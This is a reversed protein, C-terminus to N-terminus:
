ETTNQDGQPNQRDEGLRRLLETQQLDVAQMNDTLRCLIDMQQLDIAQMNDTLERLLETQQLDVAQMNDTLRRLIDTQQLDIAQVLHMLADVKRETPFSSTGEAGQSTQGIAVQGARLLSLQTGLDALIGVMLSLRNAQVDADSGFYIKGRRLTVYFEVGDSPFEVDIKWDVLDLLNLELLALRFSNPVYYWAHYDVYPSHLSESTNEFAKKQM